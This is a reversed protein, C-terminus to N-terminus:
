LPIGAAWSSNRTYRWARGSYTQKPPVPTRGKSKRIAPLKANIMIFARKGNFRPRETRSTAYTAHAQKCSCRYPAHANNEKTNRKPRQHVSPSAKQGICTKNTKGSGRTHSRCFCRLATKQKTANDVLDHTYVYVFLHHSRCRCYAKKTRERERERHTYAAGTDYLPAIM